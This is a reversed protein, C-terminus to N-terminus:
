SGIPEQMTTMRFTILKKQWTVRIINIGVCFLFGVSTSDGSGKTPKTAQTPLITQLNNKSSM